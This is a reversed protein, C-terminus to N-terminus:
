GVAVVKSRKDRSLKSGGCRLEMQEQIWEGLDLNQPTKWQLLIFWQLCDDGCYSKKGCSKQRKTMETFYTSCSKRKTEECETSRWRIM